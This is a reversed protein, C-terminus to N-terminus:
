VVEALDRFGEQQHTKANTIPPSRHAEEGPVGGPCKETLHM